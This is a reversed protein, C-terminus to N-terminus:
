RTNIQKADVIEIFEGTKANVIASMEALESSIPLFLFDNEKLGSKTIFKNVIIKNRDSVKSLSSLSKGSKVVEELHKEYPGYLRPYRYADASEQLAFMTEKKDKKDPTGIGVLEPGTISFRKWNPNKAKSLEEPTIDVVASIQFKDKNFVTFVPRAEFMVYTGYLLAAIQVVGICALDFKLSMKESKFVVFTLLPGLFVDVFGILTILKKGGMLEFYEGPFWLFFMISLVTIVILFSLMLHIGAAKLRTM